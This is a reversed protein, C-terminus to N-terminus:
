FNKIFIPSATFWTAHKKTLCLNIAHTLFYFFASRLKGQFRCLTLIAHANELMANMSM